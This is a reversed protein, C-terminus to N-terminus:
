AGLPFVGTLLSFAFRTVAFMIEATVLGPLTRNKTNSSVIIVSIKISKQLRSIM